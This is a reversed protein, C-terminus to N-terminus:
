PLIDDVRLEVNPLLEPSITDGRTFRIVDSYGAETPNRYRDLCEETLNAIWVEPVAHRAYSNTTKKRDDELSSDAVEIVLFIDEPIPHRAAYFDDRPQLLAIDPQPESNDGLRIPNQVAIIASEGTLGSLKSSLMNVCAAHKSGIPAMPIIEGDILEVRDDEHLIGEVGLLEYEDASFGRKKSALMDIIERRIDRVMKFQRDVKSGRSHECKEAIAAGTEVQQTM